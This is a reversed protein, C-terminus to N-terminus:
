SARFLPSVNDGVESSMPKPALETHAHVTVSPTTFDLVLGHEQLVDTGVIIVPCVLNEVVAFNHM